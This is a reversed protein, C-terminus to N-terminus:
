VDQGARVATTIAAAVQALQQAQAFKAAKAEAFAGGPRRAIQAYEAWLARQGAELADLLARDIAVTVRVVAASM